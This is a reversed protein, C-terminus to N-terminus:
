RIPKDVKYIMQLTTRFNVPVSDKMVPNLSPLKRHLDLVNKSLIPNARNNIKVESVNGDSNILFSFIIRGDIKDRKAEVPYSSYNRSWKNIFELDSDSIGSNKKHNM